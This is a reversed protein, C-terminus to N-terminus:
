RTAQIALLVAKAILVWWWWRGSVRGLLRRWLAVDPQRPDWAKERLPGREHPPLADFTAKWQAITTDAVYLRVYERAYPMIAAIRPWARVTASSLVGAEFGAQKLLPRLVKRRKEPFADWNALSAVAHEIWADRQRGRGRGDADRWGFADVAAPLLGARRTVQQMALADAVMAEFMPRADLQRTGLFALSSGLLDAAPTDRETELADRLTDFAMCADHEASVAPVPGPHDARPSATDDLTLPTESEGEFRDIMTESSTYEDTAATTAAERAAAWARAAEFAERLRAFGAPDTAPDIAKLREAYARKIDRTTADDDLGLRVLFPPAM